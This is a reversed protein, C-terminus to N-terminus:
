WDSPVLSPSGVLLLFRSFPFLLVELNQNNQDSWGELFLRCLTLTLFFFTLFLISSPFGGSLRGRYLRRRRGQRGPSEGLSCPSAPLQQKLVEEM